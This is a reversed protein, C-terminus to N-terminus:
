KVSVEVNVSSKTIDLKNILLKKNLLKNVFQNVVNKDKSKLQIITKTKEDTKIVEANKFKRDKVLYHIQKKTENKNFWGKKLTSFEAASKEFITAKESKIKLANKNQIVM